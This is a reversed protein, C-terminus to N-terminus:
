DEEMEKLQKEIEKASVVPGKGVGACFGVVDERWAKSNMNEPWFPWTRCQTPRAEYISCKKNELFECDKQPDRLHLHGESEECYQSKFEKPTLKFFRALRRLDKATLYVFGYSGRSLCCKGSGQCQFQIGDKYFEKM